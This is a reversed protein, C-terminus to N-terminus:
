VFQNTEREISNTDPSYHQQFCSLHSQVSCNDKGPLRIDQIFHAPSKTTSILSPTEAIVSLIRPLRSIGISSASSAVLAAAAYSQETWLLATHECCCVHAPSIQEKSKINLQLVFTRDYHCICIGYAAPNVTTLTTLQCLVSQIKM